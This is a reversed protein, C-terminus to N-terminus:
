SKDMNNKASYYEIAKNYLAMLHDTVEPSKDAQWKTFEDNISAELKQIDMGDYAATMPWGYSALIFCRLAGTQVHSVPAQAQHLVAHCLHPVGWWAWVGYVGCGRHKLLM